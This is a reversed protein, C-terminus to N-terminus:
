RLLGSPFQLRRRPVIPILKGAGALVNAALSALDECGRWLVLQWKGPIGVEYLFRAVDVIAKVAAIFIQAVGSVETTAYLDAVSKGLNVWTAGWVATSFENWNGIPISFGIHCMNIVISVAGPIKEGWATALVDAGGKGLLLISNACGIVYLLDIVGLDAELRTGEPLKQNIRKDLKGLKFLLDLQANIQKHTVSIVM